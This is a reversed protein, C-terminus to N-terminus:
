PMHLHRHRRAGAQWPSIREAAEEGGSGGGGQVWGRDMTRGSGADEVVGAVGGGGEEGKWCGGRDKHEALTNERSQFTGRTEMILEVTRDESHSTPLM